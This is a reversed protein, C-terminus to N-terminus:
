GWTERKVIVCFWFRTGHVRVWDALLSCAQSSNLCAHTQRTPVKHSHLTKGECRPRRPNILSVVVLLSRGLHRCADAAWRHLGVAPGEQRNHPVALRQRVHSVDQLTLRVTWQCSASLRLHERQAFPPSWARAVRMLTLFSCRTLALSRARLLVLISTSTHISQRRRRQDNGTRRTSRPRRCARDEQAHRPELM